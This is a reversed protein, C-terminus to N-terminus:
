RNALRKSHIKRYKGPSIGIREAFIKNMFNPTSFGVKESIETIQLETDILLKMAQELRIDSIYRSPTKGTNEKFLRILHDNCVHIIRSLEDLKIHRHYNNKIYEVVPSLRSFSSSVAQSKYFKRTYKGLIFYLGSLIELVDATSFAPTKCIEYMNNFVNLAAEDPNLIYAIATEKNFIEDLFIDPNSHSILSPEFVIAKVVSSESKSIAHHLSFSPVLVLSGSDCLVTSGNVFLSISGSEVFLLEVARHYHSFILENTGKAVARRIPVTHDLYNQFQPQM